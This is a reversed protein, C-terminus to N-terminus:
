PNREMLAQAETWNFSINRIVGLEDSYNATLEVACVPGLEYFEYRYYGTVVCDRGLYKFSTGIPRWKRMKQVAVDKWTPEHPKPERKRFPWM